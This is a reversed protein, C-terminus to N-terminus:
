QWWWWMCLAMLVMLPNSYDAPVACVCVCVGFLLVVVCFFFFILVWCPPLNNVMLSEGVKGKRLGKVLLGSCLGWDRQTHSSMYSLFLFSIRNERSVFNAMRFLLLFFRVSCFLVTQDWSSHQDCREWWWAVYCCFFVFQASLSNSNSSTNLHNVCAGM